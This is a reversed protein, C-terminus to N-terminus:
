SRGAGVGFVERLAERYQRQGVSNTNHHSGGEVLVFRKPQSAKEYLARGLREPILRDESGHVVLVPAKVKGIKSGADFRQTILPGIPLWGWKFTGFVAAVSTFGGEVILGAADPQSAALDVAITAGLSHGFIYRQRTPYQKALWEWAAHADEYALTESPLVDTSQGFGRYDVALVSFGLEQMRRVRSASGTVDWRAGHLYLMVPANPSPNALFLGHLRAPADARKSTFDIWVPEMGDAAGSGAWWTQKNPQFIWKSQQNDFSTCGTVGAVVMAVAVSGLTLFRRIPSRKVAISPDSPLSTPPSM